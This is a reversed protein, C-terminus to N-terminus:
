AHPPRTPLQQKFLLPPAYMVVRQPPQPSQEAADRAAPLANPAKRTLGTTRHMIGCLTPLPWLQATFNDLGRSQTHTDPTQRHTHTTINFWTTVGLFTQITDCVKWELHLQQKSIGTISSPRASQSFKLSEYPFRCSWVRSPYKNLVPEALLNTQLSWRSSINAQM